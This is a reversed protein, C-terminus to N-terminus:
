TTKQIVEQGWVDRRELFPCGKEDLSLEEWIGVFEEPRPPPIKNTSPPFAAPGLAKEGYLRQTGTASPTSSNVDSIPRLTKPSSSDEPQNTNKLTERSNSSTVAKEPLDLSQSGRKIRGGPHLSALETESPVHLIRNPGSQWAVIAMQKTIRRIDPPNQDPSVRYTYEVKGESSQNVQQTWDQEELIVYKYEIRTGAPLEMDVMWIDDPTWSMPVKAISLFSWGLPITSGGVCLMQRSHVRFQVSLRVRVLPPTNKLSSEDRLPFPIFSCSLSSEEKREEKREGLDRQEMLEPLHTEMGGTETQRSNEGERKRGEAIGWENEKGKWADYMEGYSLFLPGPIAIARVPLPGKGQSRSQGKRHWTGNGYSRGVRQHSVRGKFVGVRGFSVDM